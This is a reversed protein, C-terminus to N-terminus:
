KDNTINKKEHTTQKKKTKEKIVFIWESLSYTYKQFEEEVCFQSM